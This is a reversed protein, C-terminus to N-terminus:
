AQLHGRVFDARREDHRKKRLRQYLASGGVASAFVSNEHDRKIGKQPHRDVSIHGAVPFEGGPLISPSSLPSVNVSSVDHPRPRSQKLPNKEPNSSEHVAVSALPDALQFKYSDSMYEHSSGRWGGFILMTSGHVVAAHRTRRAPPMRAAATKLALRRLDCVLAWTRTSFNFEHLDSFRQGREGIGAFVFMSHDHTVATHRYRAAPRTGFAAADETWTNSRLCLEQISAFYCKGVRGGFVHMAHKHIVATHAVRAKTAVQSELRSWQLDSLSFQWADEEAAIRPRGGYVLVAGGELGAVDAATVLVASHEIRGGPGAGAEPIRRWTRSKAHYAHADSFFVQTGDDKQFGGGFVWISGGWAICQAGARPEPLDGTAYTEQWVNNKLDLVHLDNRYGTADYGGFLYVSGHNGKAAAAAHGIRASYM